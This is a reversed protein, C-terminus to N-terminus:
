KKVWQQLEKDSIKQGSSVFRQQDIEVLIGDQSLMKVTANKKKQTRTFYKFVSVSSLITASWVLFKKRSQSKQFEQM